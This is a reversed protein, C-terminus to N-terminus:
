RFIEWVSVAMIVVGMVGVILADPRNAYHAYAKARRFLLFPVLYVLFTMFIGGIVSIFDLISPNIVAVAM